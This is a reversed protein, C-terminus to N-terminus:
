VARGLIKEGIADAFGDVDKALAQRVGDAEKEIKERIATLEAQAKDNIKNIIKKEEEAANALLAEKEEMGKARAAKIGDAYANEKEILDKDNEEISQELGSIKEKRQTLVTRIPKYLLINMLIILLLFNGIQFIVSVDPLVTLGAGFAASSSSLFLVCCALYASGWKRGSGSFKM